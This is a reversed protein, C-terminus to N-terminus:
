RKPVLYIKGYYYSSPTPLSTAYTIGLKNLAGNPQAGTTNTGTGGNTIALIGSVGIDAVDVEGTFPGSATTSNLAVMLTCGQALKLATMAAAATETAGLKNNLQTQISETVGSLYGLETSTASSVAIKGSSNSILARYPELNSSLITTVAGIANKTTLVTGSLIDNTNITIIGNDSISLTTEQNPSFLQTPKLDIEPLALNEIYIKNNQGYINSIKAGNNEGLSMFIVPTDETSAQSTNIEVIASSSSTNTANIQLASDSEDEPTGFIKSVNIGARGKRIAFDVDASFSRYPVAAVTLTSNSTNTFDIDFNLILDSINEQANPFYIFDIVLENLTSFDVPTYSANIIYDGNKSYYATGLMKSNKKPAIKLTNGYKASGCLNKPLVLTGSIYGGEETQVNKFTVPDAAWHAVNLACTIASPCEKILGNAYHLETVLTLTVTRYDEIISPVPVSGGFISYDEDIAALEFENASFDSTLKNVIVAGNKTGAADTWEFGSLAISANTGPNFYTDDVGGGVFLRAGAFNPQTTYDFEIDLSIVSLSESFGSYVGKILIKGRPFPNQKTIVTNKLAAWLDGDGTTKSALSINYEYIEGRNASSLVIPRASLAAEEDNYNLFVEAQPNGLGDSTEPLDSVWNFQVQLSQYGINSVVLDKLELAKIVYLSIEPSDVSNGYNDEITMKYYFTNGRYNSLSDKYSTTNRDFTGISGWNGNLGQKRKLTYTFTRNNDVVTDWKLTVGDYVHSERGTRGNAEDCHSLWFPNPLDFVTTYTYPQANYSYGSDTYGTGTAYHREKVGVYFNKNSLEPYAAPNFIFSTGIIEQDIVTWNAATTLKYAVFYSKSQVGTPSVSTNSAWSVNFSSGVEYSNAAAISPTTPVAIDYFTLALGRSAGYDAEAYVIYRKSSSPAQNVQYSRVNAGVLKASEDSISIEYGTVPNNVGDTAPDWRLEWSTTKENQGIYHSSFSSYIHAPASVETKNAVVLTAYRGASEMESHTYAYDEADTMTAITYKYTGEISPATFSYSYIGDDKVPVNIMDEWRNSPDKGWVTYRTIKNTAGTPMSAQPWSLTVQSNPTTTSSSISVYSPPNPDQYNNNDIWDVTCQIQSGYKADLSITNSSKNTRRSLCVQISTTNKVFSYETSLMDVTFTVTSWSSSSTGKIKEETSALIPCDATFDNLGNSVSNDPSESSPRKHVYIYDSFGNIVRMSVYFQVRTITANEPIKSAANTTLTIQPLCNPRDYVEGTKLTYNFITTSM